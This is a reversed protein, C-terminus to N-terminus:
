SVIRTSCRILLILPVRLLERFTPVRSAHNNFVWDKHEQFDQRNLNARVYEMHVIFRGMNWAGGETILYVFVQKADDKSNAVGNLSKAIMNRNENIQMKKYIHQWLLEKGLRSMSSIFGLWWSMM